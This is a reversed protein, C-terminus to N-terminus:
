QACRVTDSNRETPEDPEYDPDILYALNEAATRLQRTTMEPHRNLYDNVVGVLEDTLALVNGAKRREGLRWRRIMAVAERARPKLKCIQRAVSKMADDNDIRGLEQMISRRFHGDGRNVAERDGLWRFARHELVGIARIWARQNQRGHQSQIDPFYRRIAEEWEPSLSRPRGLKAPKESFPESIALPTGAGIPKGM